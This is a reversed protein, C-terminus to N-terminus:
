KKTKYYPNTFRTKANRDISGDDRKIIYFLQFNKDEKVLEYEKDKTLLFPIPDICRVYKSEPKTEKCYLYWFLIILIVGIAIVCIIFTEKM